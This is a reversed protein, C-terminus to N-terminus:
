DVDTLVLARLTSDSTGVAAGFQKAPRSLGDCTNEVTKVFKPGSSCWGLYQNCVVMYNLVGRDAKLIEKILFEGIYYNM